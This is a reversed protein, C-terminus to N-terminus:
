KKEGKETKVGTIQILREWGKYDKEITRTLAASGKFIKPMDTNDLVKHYGPDQMAKLYTEELKKRVPDPLGKPGMIVIPTDDIGSDYGLDRLTPVDPASPLRIMDYNVLLRMTKDRVFQVHFGGASWAHIHGGMLSTAQKPGGPIPVFKWDIGGRTLAVWEPLIHGGLGYGDHSWIIKGPNKKAYDLYEDFTKWPADAKVVLGVTHQTFSAIWTFDKFVDYPVHRMHPLQTFASGSLAGITYGDPKANTVASAGIAYSAGPKNVVVIPQGLAKGSIESIFRILQDTNTGAAHACVLTIERDPYAAQAPSFLSLGIGVIMFFLAKKM